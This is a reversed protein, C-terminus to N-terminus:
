IWWWTIWLVSNKKDRCGHLSRGSVRQVGQVMPLAQELFGSGYQPTIEAASVLGEKESDSVFEVM